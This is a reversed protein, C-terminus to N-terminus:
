TMEPYYVTSLPLIKKFRLSALKCLEINNEFDDMEQSLRWPECLILPTLHGAADKFKVVNPKKKLVLIKGGQILIYKPLFRPADPFRDQNTVLPVFQETSSEVGGTRKLEQVKENYILNSKEM